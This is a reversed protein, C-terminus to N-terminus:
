GLALREFLQCYIEPPSEYFAEAYGHGHAHYLSRYANLGLITHVFDAASLQSEFQKMAAEKTTIVDSIDVLRNALLPTWVEYGRYVPQWNRPFHLARTVAYLIRNTAWHDPHLDLSSPLYVVAPQKEQLIHQVRRIVEPSPELQSDPYDLFIQEQIGLIKAARAAEDKRKSVLAAEQSTMVAKPLGQRYLDPNGKRGDTMYVATVTAGALIHRRLIGGCGFVEDDMHPALIIVQRVSFDTILETPANHGQM